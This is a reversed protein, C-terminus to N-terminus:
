FFEHKGDAYIIHIAQFSTGGPHFEILDVTAQDTPWSQNMTACGSAAWIRKRLKIGDDYVHFKETIKVPFVAVLDDFRDRVLIRGKIAKIPKGSVNVLLFELRYRGGLEIQSGLFTLLVMNFSKEWRGYEIAKRLSKEISALNRGGPEHVMSGILPWFREQEAHYERSLNAVMEDLLAPDIDFALAVMVEARTGPYTVHEAANREAIEAQRMCTKCLVLGDAEADDASDYGLLNYDPIRAAHPCVNRHYVASRASAVFPKNRAKAGAASYKPGSNCRCGPIVPLAFITMGALVIPLAPLVRRVYRIIGIPPTKEITPRRVSRSLPSASCCIAIKRM